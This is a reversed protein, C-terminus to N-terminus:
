GELAEVRAELAEIKADLADIEEGKAELRGDLAIIEDVLIELIEKRFHGSVFSAKLATLDEIAM